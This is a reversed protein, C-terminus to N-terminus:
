VASSVPAEHSLHGSVTGPGAPRYHHECETERGRVIRKGQMPGYAATIVTHQREGDGADHYLVVWDRTRKLAHAHATNSFLATYHRDGRQTHLVPLWSERAPNFRRPAITSLAGATAAARYERDVDLLETVTPQDFRSEPRPPLPARVRGLRQALSDRIGALRKGGIGAFDRLRGDHAAAELDTLSDLGLEAHLKDALVQGIGPVSRLLAIPDHDGRMRDLLALRGHLVLDRIARALSQGIGPLCELGALGERALLSSVPQDLTRVTEAAHRYALVRFRNAGQQALLTAVEDLRSGIDQNIAIAM